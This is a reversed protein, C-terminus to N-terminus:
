STLLGSLVVCVNACAMVPGGAGSGVRAGAFTQLLALQINHTLPLGRQLM